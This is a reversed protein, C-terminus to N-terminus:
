QWGPRVIHIITVIVAIAILITFLEMLQDYVPNSNTAPVLYWGHYPGGTWGAPENEDYIYDCQFVLNQFVDIVYTGGLFDKAVQITKLTSETGETFTDLISGDGGGTSTSNTPNTLENVVDATTEGGGQHAVPDKNQAIAATEDWYCGGIHLPNEYVNTGLAGLGFMVNFCVSIVILKLYLDKKM